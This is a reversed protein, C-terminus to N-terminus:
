LMAVQIYFTNDWIRYLITHKFTIHSLPTSHKQSVTCLYVCYRPLPNLYVYSCPWEVPMLLTVPKPNLTSPKPQPNLTKPKPNLPMCAVHAAQRRLTRAKGLLWVACPLCIRGHPDLPLRRAAAALAQARVGRPQLGFCGARPQASHINHSFVAPPARLPYPRQSRTVSSACVSSSCFSKKEQADHL